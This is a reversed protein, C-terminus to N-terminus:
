QMTELEIIVFIQNKSQVKVGHGVGSYLARQVAKYKGAM